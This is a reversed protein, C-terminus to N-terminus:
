FKTLRCSLFFNYQNMYGPTKLNSGISKHAIHLIEATDKIDGPNNQIPMKNQNILFQLDANKWMLIEIKLGLLGSM